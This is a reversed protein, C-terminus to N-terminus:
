YKKIKYVSNFEEKSMSNKMKTTLDLLDDASISSTWDDGRNNIYYLRWNPTYGIKAHGILDLSRDSENFKDLYKM